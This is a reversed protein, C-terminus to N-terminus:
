PQRILDQKCYIRSFDYYKKESGCHSSRAKCGTDQLDAWGNDSRLWGGVKRKACTESRWSTGVLLVEVSRCVAGTKLVVQVAM